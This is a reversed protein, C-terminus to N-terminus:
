ASQARGGRWYQWGFFVTGVCTMAALARANGSQLALGYYALVGSALWPDQVHTYPWPLLLAQGQPTAARRRILAELWTALLLMLCGLWALWLPIPTPRLPLLLVVGAALAVLTRMWTLRVRPTPDVNGHRRWHAGVGLLLGIGYAGTGIMRPWHDPPFMDRLLRVTDQLIM